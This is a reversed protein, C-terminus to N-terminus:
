AHDVRAQHVLVHHDAAGLHPDVPHASVPGELLDHEVALEGESSSGLCFALLCFPAFWEVYLYSWHTLTLQFGILLAGSLAALRVGDLVRPRFGLAVAALVVVVKLVTQLWGLDPLGPYIGWDWLSFPSPRDLQWGFTSDWARHLADIGGPVVLALATASAALLGLGTRLLPANRLWLPWLM